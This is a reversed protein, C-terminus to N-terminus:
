PRIRIDVASFTIQNRIELQSKEQNRAIVYSGHRVGRNITTTYARANQRAIARHDPSPVLWNLIDAEDLKARRRHPFM